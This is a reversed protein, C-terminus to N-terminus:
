EIILGGVSYIDSRINERFHIMTQIGRRYPYAGENRHVFEVDEPKYTMVTTKQGFMGPVKYLDGYESRMSQQIDAMQSNHFKGGPMFFRIMEFKSPGPISDFPRAKSYEEDNPKFNVAAQASLSRTIRLKNSLAIPRFNVSRVSQLMM